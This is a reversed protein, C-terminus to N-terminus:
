GPVAGVDVEQAHVESTHVQSNNAIRKAASAFNITDKSLAPNQAM